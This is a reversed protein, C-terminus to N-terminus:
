PPPSATASRQIATVFAEEGRRSDFEVRFPMPRSYSWSEILRHFLAVRTVRDPPGVIQRVDARGM